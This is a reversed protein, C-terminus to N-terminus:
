TRGSAKVAERMQLLAEHEVIGYEKALIRAMEVETQLVGDVYIAIKPGPAPGDSDYVLHLTTM